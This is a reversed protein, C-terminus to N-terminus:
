GSKHCSAEFTHAAGGIRVGPVTEALKPICSGLKWLYAHHGHGRLGFVESVPMYLYFFEFVADPYRQFAVQEASNLSDM